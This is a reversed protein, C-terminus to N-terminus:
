LAYRKPPLASAQLQKKKRRSKVFYPVLAFNASLSVVLLAGLLWKPTAPWIQDRVQPLLALTSAAIPPLALQIVTKITESAAAKKIEEKLSMSAFYRSPATADM